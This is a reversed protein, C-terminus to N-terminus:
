GGGGGGWSLSATSVYLYHIIVLTQALEQVYSVNDMM